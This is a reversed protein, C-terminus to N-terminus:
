IYLPRHGKLDVRCQPCQHSIDKWTMLCDMCFVHGCDTVGNVDSDRCIPCTIRASAEQEKCLLNSQVASLGDPPTPGRQIEQLRECKRRVSLRSHRKCRRRLNKAKTRQFNGAHYLATFVNRMKFHSLRPERFLRAIQPPLPNWRISLAQRDVTQSQKEIWVFPDDLIANVQSEFDQPTLLSPEEKEDEACIESDLNIPFAVVILWPHFGLVGASRCASGGEVHSHTLPPVRVQPRSSSVRRTEM